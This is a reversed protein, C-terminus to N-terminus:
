QGANGREKSEKKQKATEYTGNCGREKMRDEICWQVALEESDFPRSSNLSPAKKFERKAVFNKGGPLRHVEYKWKKSQCQFVIMEAEM